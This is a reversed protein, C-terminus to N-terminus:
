KYLNFMLHIRDENSENLVGHVRTNDFEYIKGKEWNYRKNEIVYFVESNTKIPIHIRHCDELFGGTDRHMGVESKPRLKALFCMYDSFTYYKRLENLFEDIVDRYHDFIQQDAFSSKYDKSGSKNYDGFYRFIISETNQLNNMTNRIQNIYWHQPEILDILEQVLDPPIVGVMQYPEDMKM